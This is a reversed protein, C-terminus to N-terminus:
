FLYDKLQQEWQYVTNFINCILDLEKPLVTPCPSLAAMGESITIGYCKHMDELKTMSHDLSVINISPVFNANIIGGVMANAMNGIGIFGIIKDM